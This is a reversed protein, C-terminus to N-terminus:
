PSVSTVDGTHLPLKVLSALPVSALGCRRRLVQRQEEVVQMRGLGAMLRERRRRQRLQCRAVGLARADGGLAARDHDLLQADALAHDQGLAARRRHDPETMAADIAPAMRTGGVNPRHADGGVSEAEAARAAVHAQRGVM